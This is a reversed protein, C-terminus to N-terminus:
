WIKINCYFKLKYFLVNKKIYEIPELKKYNIYKKYIIYM